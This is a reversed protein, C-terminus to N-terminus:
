LILQAVEQEMADLQEPVLETAMWEWIPMISSRSIRGRQKSSRPVTQLIDEFATCFMRQPTPVRQLNGCKRLAPRLADLVSNYPLGRGGSLRDIEVAAVLRKLDKERIDGLFTDLQSKAIDTMPEKERGLPASLGLIAALAVM